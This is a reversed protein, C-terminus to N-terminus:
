IESPSLVKNVIRSHITQFKIESELTLCKFFTTDKFFITMSVHEKRENSGPGITAMARYAKSLYLYGVPLNPKTCLVKKNPNKPTRGTKTM